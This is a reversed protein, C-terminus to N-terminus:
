TNYEPIIYRTKNQIIATHQPRYLVRMKYSFNLYYGAHFFVSKFIRELGVEVQLSVTPANALRGSVPVGLIMRSRCILFGVM